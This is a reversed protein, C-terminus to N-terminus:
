LADFTNVPIKYANQPRNKVQEIFEFASDTEQTNSFLLTGNNLNAIKNIM